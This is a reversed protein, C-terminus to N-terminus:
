NLNLLLQNQWASAPITPPGHIVTELDLRHFLSSKIRRHVQLMSL